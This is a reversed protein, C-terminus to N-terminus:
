GGRAGGLVAVGLDVAPAAADAHREEAGGADELEGALEAVAGVSLGDLPEEALGLGGNDGGGAGAGDWGGGDGGGGGRDGGGGGGNRAADLGSRRNAAAMLHERHGQRLRLQAAPQVQALRRSRLVDGCRRRRIPEPM